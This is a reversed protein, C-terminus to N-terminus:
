FSKLKFLEDSMLTTQALVKVHVYQLAIFELKLASAAGQVLNRADAISSFRVHKVPTQLLLGTVNGLRARLTGTGDGHASSQSIKNSM